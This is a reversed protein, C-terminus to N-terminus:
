PYVVTWDHEELWERSLEYRRLEIHRERLVSDTKGHFEDVINNIDKARYVFAQIVKTKAFLETRSSLSTIVISQHPLFRTIKRRPIPSLTDPYDLSFHICITDDSSNNFVIVEYEEVQVEAFICSSIAIIVFLLPILITRM